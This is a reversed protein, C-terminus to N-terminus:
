RSKDGRPKDLGDLANLAELLEPTFLDSGASASSHANIIRARARAKEVISGGLGSPPKAAEETAAPLDNPQSELATTSLERDGQAAEIAQAADIDRARRQIMEVLDRRVAQSDAPVGTTVEKRPDFDPFAELIQRAIDSAGKACAMYFAHPVLAHQQLRDAYTDLSALGSQMNGLQSMFVRLFVKDSPRLGMQDLTVASPTSM